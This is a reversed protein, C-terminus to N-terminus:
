DVGADGSPETTTTTTTTPRKPVQTLINRVMQYKCGIFKAIASRTYGASWLHRIMSSKTKLGRARIIDGWEMMNLLVETKRGAENVTPQPLPEVDVPPTIPQTATKRKTM